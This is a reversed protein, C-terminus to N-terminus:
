RMSLVKDEINNGTIKTFKSNIEITSSPNELLLAEMVTWGLKKSNAKLFELSTIEHDELRDLEHLIHEDHEIPCGEDMWEKFSGLKVNLENLMKPTPRFDIVIKNGWRRYLNASRHTLKGANYACVSKDSMMPRNERYHIPWNLGINNLGAKAIQILIDFDEWVPYDEFYRIGNDRLARANLLVAQCLRTDNYIFMDRKGDEVEQIRDDIQYPIMGSIGIPRANDLYTYVFKLTLYQWTKFFREVDEKYPDIDRVLKGYKKYVIQPVIDDDFMYLYDINPYTKAHYDLIFNRIMPIKHPLQSYRKDTFFDYDIVNVWPYQVRYVEAMKDQTVIHVTKGLCSLIGLCEKTTDQIKGEKDLISLVYIPYVQTEIKDVINFIPAFNKSGSYEMAKRYNLYHNFRRKILNFFKM